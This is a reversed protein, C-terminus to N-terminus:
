EVCGSSPAILGAVIRVLTSKGCGSPGLLSVFEGQAMHLNVNELAAVGSSFSKGLDKITLM